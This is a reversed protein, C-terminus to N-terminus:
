NAFVNGSQISCGTVTSQIALIERNEGTYRNRIVMSKGGERGNIITGTCSSFSNDFTATVRRAGSAMQMNVTMTNGSFEVNGAVAVGVAGNGPRTDIAKREAGRRGGRYVTRDSRIFTRGADSIYISMTGSATISGAPGGGM